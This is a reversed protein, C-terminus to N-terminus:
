GRRRFRLFYIPRGWARFKAEHISVPYDEPRPATLGPLFPNELTPCAQCALLIEGAYWGVDTSVLLDGGTELARAVGSVFPPHSFLRRNAHRRKPWPDPFNIWCAALTGPPIADLIMLGDGHIVRANPTGAAAIKAAIKEARQRRIEIGLFDWGPNQRAAATLFLGKGCGVELVVPAQRGFVSEWAWPGPAPLDLVPSADPAANM